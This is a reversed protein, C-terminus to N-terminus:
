MCSTRPEIRADGTPAVSIGAQFSSSSSAHIVNFQISELYLLKGERSIQKGEASLKPSLNM